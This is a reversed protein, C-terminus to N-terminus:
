GLPFATTVRYHASLSAQARAAQDDSGYVGFCASGSGSMAAHLAGTAKIRGICAGLEPLQDSLPRVFDNRFPWNEPSEELYATALRDLERDLETDSPLSPAGVAARQRDLTAYAERTSVPFGPNVIVVVFDQRPALPELLEGRGKISACASGMFFPVDSGIGASLELLRQPAVMDPFIADLAKLTAAADSSGGGLGAGVPIRKEVDIRVGWSGGGAPLERLFAGAAKYVTNQEPACGCDGGVQIGSGPLAEVTVTDVLSVAQFISAIAHFGDPRRSGVALHLNIKAPAALTILTKMAVTYRHGADTALRRLLVCLDHVFITSLGSRDRKSKVWRHNRYAM